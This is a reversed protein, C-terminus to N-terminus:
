LAAFRDCRGVRVILRTAIDVRDNGRSSAALMPTELSRVSRRRTTGKMGGEKEGERRPATV